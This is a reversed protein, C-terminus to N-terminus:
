GQHGNGAIRDIDLVRQKTLDTACTSYVLSEGTGGLMEIASFSCEAERYRTWAQESAVLRDLIEQSYPKKDNGYYVGNSADQQAQAKLRAAITEYTSALLADTAHWANGQCIKMALNSDAANLCTKLKGDIRSLDAKLDAHALAPLSLVFALAIATFSLKM